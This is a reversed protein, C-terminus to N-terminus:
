LENLKIVGITVNDTTGKDISEKVIKEAFEECTMKEKSLKFLDENNLVDWVGDSGMIAFLDNENIISSFLSPTSLVGYQKMEKDGLSRTLMLTGFVRGQFVMGGKKKIRGVENVDNCNHDKTIQNINEKNLIFGKSDGVNACIIEKKSTNYPDRYLLIITGTSGIEDNIDNNNIIIKDIEEFSNKVASLIKENNLKHDENFSILQLENLLIKHFNEKLYLSVEKGSHGDFISFYYCIFNNFSLDQFNHFDEMTERCEKNPNEEFAYSKFLEGKDNNVNGMSEKLIDKKEKSINNIINQITEENKDEIIENLNINISPIEKRKQSRQSIKIKSVNSKSFKIIM